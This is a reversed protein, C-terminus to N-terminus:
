LKKIGETNSYKKSQSKAKCSQWKDNCFISKSKVCHILVQNIM